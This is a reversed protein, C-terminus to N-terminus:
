KDKVSAKKSTTKERLKKKYIDRAEDVSIMSYDRGVERISMINSTPVFIIEGVPNIKPTVETYRGGAKVFYKNKILYFMM